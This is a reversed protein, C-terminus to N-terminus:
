TPTAYPALDMEVANDGHPTLDQLGCDSGLGVLAGHVLAKRVVEPYHEMLKKSPESVYESYGAKSSIEDQAVHSNVSEMEDLPFYM